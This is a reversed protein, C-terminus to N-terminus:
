SRFPISSHSMFKISLRSVKLSMLMSPATRKTPSTNARMQRRPDAPVRFYKLRFNKSNYQNKVYAQKLFLIYYCIKSNESTRNPSTIGRIRPCMRLKNDDVVIKVSLSVISDLGPEQKQNFIM